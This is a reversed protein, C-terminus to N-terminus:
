TFTLQIRERSGDPHEIYVKAGTKISIVVDHALEICGAVLQTRNSIGTISSLEEIKTLTRPQIRMQVLKSEGSKQFIEKEKLEDPMYIM